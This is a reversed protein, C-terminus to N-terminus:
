STRTPACGSEEPNCKLEYIRKLLEIVERTTSVYYGANSTGDPADRVKVSLGRGKLAGFADEDTQDDGIYVPYVNRNLHGELRGLLWLLTTGKNWKVPPRVEWVKKGETASLRSARLYPDLISQFTSRARAAREPNLMRYHLSLSLGKNEVIIGRETKFAHELAEAVRNMRQTLAQAQPHVFHIGPGEFELGHNGAYIVEKLGIRAKLDVLSRGSMIAIKIENTNSLVELTRKNRPSLKAQDPNPVIRALTGDFDLCLFLYREDLCIAIEQWNLLAHKVSLEEQTM